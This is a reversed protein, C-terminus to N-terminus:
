IGRGISVITQSLSSQSIDSHSPYLRLVAAARGQLPCYEDASDQGAEPASSVINEGRGWFVTLCPRLVESVNCDDKNFTCYKCPITM